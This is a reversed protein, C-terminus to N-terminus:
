TGPTVSLAKVLEAAKSQVKRANAPGMRLLQKQALSLSELKPDAFELFTPGRRLAIEGDPVPTKAIVEAARAVAKSFDDAPYGLEAYAAGFLPALIAHVRAVEAADLSAVASAFDDYVAFSRPDAVLAGAKEVAQFHVTPTLFPLFRAPSRGEAVNQIAVTLTRVLDRAALWAALQPHTSLGRALDRVFADSESLVPLPPGPEASPPSTPATPFVPEPPLPDIKKGPRLLLLVGITVAALLGVGAAILGIPLRPERKEEPEYPDRLEDPDPPEDPGGPPGGDIPFDDLDPM